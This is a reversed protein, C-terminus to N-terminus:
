PVYIFESCILLNHALTVWSDGQSVRDSSIYDLFRRQEHEQPARGLVTEFLWDIRRAPESSFEQSRVALLRASELIWDANMLLLMQVSLLITKRSGVPLSQVPFDFQELLSFLQIRIVPM